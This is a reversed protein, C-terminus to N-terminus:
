KRYEGPTCGYFEKFKKLFYNPNQYGCMEAIDAIRISGAKVMDGAKEMRLRTLYDNFNEGSENKFLRSLYAPNVFFQGAIRNLNIEEQYHNKVYQQIEPVLKGPGTKKSMAVAQMATQALQKLYARLEQLTFLSVAASGPAQEDTAGRHKRSIRGLGVALEMVTDRISQPSFRKEELERFITDLISEVQERHGNEVYYFLAKEKDDPYIYLESLTEIEDIYVIRQAALLGANQAAMMAQRYSAAIDAMETFERGIGIYAEFKLVSGLREIVKEGHAYFDGAMAEFDQTRYNKIVVLDGQRSTHRFVLTDEDERFLESCVNWLAFSALFGDGRYSRKAIEGFNEVRVVAVIKPISEFHLAFKECGERFENPSFVAGSVLNTLFADRALQETENVRYTLGSIRKELHEKEQLKCVAKELAGKLDPEEIPKLLYDFAQFTLAKHAYEFDSFGSIVIKVIEPYEAHVWELLAIGDMVPMRIDTLLIDPQHKLIMEKAVAGNKAEGLLTLRMERWDLLDIIARRTWKEDDVILVKYM